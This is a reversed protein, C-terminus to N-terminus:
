KGKQVPMDKFVVKANVKSVPNTGVGGVAEADVGDDNGDRVKSMIQCVFNMM